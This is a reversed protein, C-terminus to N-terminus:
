RSGGKRSAVTALVTRLVRVLSEPRELPPDDAVDEIVHLPWGYRTSIREAAALPTARDHRGWILTTPAQIRELDASGIPLGFHEMLALLSAMVQPDSARELNYSEFASWTTDMDSRLADLDLACQRWLREHTEANPRALFEQLAAAFQPLPEFSALGLSDILVLRSLQTPARAAFHAAIAGGLAYGVVAPTSTCTARVLAGLWDIVRDTDVQGRIVDSAGQGPLDPIILRHETVLSPIVRMWHVASGGPGHLLLLNSGEGGELVPTSIGALHLRRETVPLRSLLRQRLEEGTQKSLRPMVPGHASKGTSTSQM